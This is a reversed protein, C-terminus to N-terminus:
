KDGLTTMAEEFSQALMTIIRKLKINEARLRENEEEMERDWPPVVSHRVIDAKVEEVDSWYVVFGKGRGQGVQNVYGSNRLEAISSPLDYVDEPLYQRLVSTSGLFVKKIPQSFIKKRSEDSPDADGILQDLADQTNLSAAGLMGRLVLRASDSLENVPIM